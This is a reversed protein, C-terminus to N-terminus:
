RKFSTTNKIHKEQFKGFLRIDLMKKPAIKKKFHLSNNLFFCKKPMKFM